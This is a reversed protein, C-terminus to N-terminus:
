NVSQQEAEDGAVGKQLVSFVLKCGDPPLRRLLTELVVIAQHLTDRSGAVACSAVRQWGAAEQAREGMALAEAVTRVRHHDMLHGIDWLLDASAESLRLDDVLALVLVDREEQGIDLRNSM